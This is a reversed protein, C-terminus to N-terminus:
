QEELEATVKKINWEPYPYVMGGDDGEGIVWWALEEDMWPGAFYALTTGLRYISQGAAGTEYLTWGHRLPDNARRRQQDDPNRRHWDGRGRNFGRGRPDAM